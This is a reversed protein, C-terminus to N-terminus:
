VLIDITKRVNAVEPLPTTKTAGAEKSDEQEEPQEQEKRQKKEKERQVRAADPKYVDVVEASMREAENKMERNAASQMVEGRRQQATADKVFETAKHLMVKPGLGDVPM